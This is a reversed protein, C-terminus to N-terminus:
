EIHRLMDDMMEDFISRPTPASPHANAFITPVLDFDHLEAAQIFGGVCTASGTFKAILEQGQLYGFREDRYSEWTTEVPTFTSTEHNIAGTVIRM